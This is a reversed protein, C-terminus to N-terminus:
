DSVTIRGLHPAVCEPLCAVPRSQVMCEGCIEVFVIRARIALFWQVGTLLSGYYSSEAIVQWGVSAIPAISILTCARYCARVILPALVQLLSPKGRRLLRWNWHLAVCVVQCFGTVYLPPSESM